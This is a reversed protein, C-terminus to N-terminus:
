QSEAVLTLCLLQMFCFQVAVSFNHIAFLLVTQFKLADTLRHVTLRIVLNLCEFIRFEINLKKNVLKFNLNMKFTIITYANFLEERKSFDSQFFQLTNLLTKETHTHRAPERAHVPM